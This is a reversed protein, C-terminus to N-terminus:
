EKIRTRFPLNAELTWGSMLINEHLTDNTYVIRLAQAKTAKLKSKDHLARSSGWADVGWFFEGWGSASSFDLTFASSQSDIYNIQTTVEIQFTDSEFDNVSADLSQVKLRLYKKYVDPEGMAEWHTRYDFPISDVHDAYDYTDATDLIKYLNSEVDGSVTGLRRESFHLNDNFIVAGGQFDINDWELWAKRSYDYIIMRSNNTDTYKENSGSTLEAPLFLIYKDKQFWNVSVAKSLNFTSNVQRFVPEVKYSVEEPENEGVRLGFVGKSGLFVLKGKIESITHHSVCGVDGGSVVDVRFQDNAIDGTLVHISQDKFTFLANNNTSIGTVKDGFNTEVLFSNDGAPFYEAGDLDSYYVTNVNTLDGSCILLNRFVTLYRGKPPLGHQKIPEVYNAGLASDALNDTHAQTSNFSDNPFEAVLSYTTGASQNRYVAIRLNNSIITNDAITVAAGEITITTSTKSDINRTIYAAEVSDYFYATDGVNFTHNGGAGDDLTLTNLTTHLGVAIGCNTNFGTTNLINTITLDAQKATLALATSPDSQIGEVVNGKNDLQVYTVLYKLSSNTISGAGGDVSTLTVGQPMGARFFTQGDYKYLEDYGTGVYLVNQLNVFSANKFEDDDKNALTTALPSALPSNITELASYNIAVGSSNLATDRQITLFAAPVSADGVITASFDALADVQTKLNAATIASAENIGTGLDYSLLTIGNEEAEFKFTSTTSDVYLNMSATSSGTYAITITAEVLKHLNDDVTILEETIAGTTINVNAYIASGGGGGTDKTISQYGKRKNLAGTKRYDANMLSSAYNQERTLDSSRLDLGKDNFFSKILTNKGAM